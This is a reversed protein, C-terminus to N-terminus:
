RRHAAIPVGNTNYSDTSVVYSSRLRVQLMKHDLEHSGYGALLNLGQLDEMTM